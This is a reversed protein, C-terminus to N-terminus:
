RGRKDRMKKALLQVTALDEMDFEVNSPWFGTAL